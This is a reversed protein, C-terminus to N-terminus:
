YRRSTKRGHFRSQRWPMTGQSLREDALLFLSDLDDDMLCAYLGTEEDQLALKWQSSELSLSIKGPARKTGDPLVTTSLFALLEAFPQLLGGTKAHSSSSSALREADAKTPLPMCSHVEGTWKGSKCVPCAHWLRRVPPDCQRCIVWGPLSCMTPGRLLSDWWCAPRCAPATYVATCRRCM